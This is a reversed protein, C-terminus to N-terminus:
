TPQGDAELTFGLLSGHGLMTFPMTLYSFPWEVRAAEDATMAIPTSLGLKGGFHERAHSAITGAIEGVFDRCMDANQQAEGVQTLLQRLLPEPMTLFVFGNQQGTMRILGTFDSFDPTGFGLQAADFTVPESMTREFYRRTIEAFHALEDEDTGAPQPNM